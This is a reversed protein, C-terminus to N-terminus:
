CIPWNYHSQTLKNRLPLVTNSMKFHRMTRLVHGLVYYIGLLYKFFKSLLSYFLGSSGFYHGLQSGKCATEGNKGNSFITDKKPALTKSIERSILINATIEIIKLVFHIKCIVKSHLMVKYFLLIFNIAFAVFLALFRLNYFNRALYHQFSFSLCFDCLEARPLSGRERM